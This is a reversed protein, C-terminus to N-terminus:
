SRPPATSRAGTPMTSPTDRRSSWRRWSWPWAPAAWWARRGTDLARLLCLTSAAALMAVLAYARAETGYFMSYPQLAVVAAAVIGATRGVTLLGLAYSLPVLAVGALLSPLRIWLAPDGIHASAWALVFGLPPTKETDHVAQLVGGLSRDHVIGFLILEDGLLSDRLLV